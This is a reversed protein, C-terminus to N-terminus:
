NRALVFKLFFHIQDGRFLIFILFVWCHAPSHKLLWSSPIQGMFAVFLMQLKSLVASSGIDGCGCVAVKSWKLLVRLPLVFLKELIEPLLNNRNKMKSKHFDIWKKFIMKCMNQSSVIQPNSETLSVASSCNVIGRLLNGHHLRM